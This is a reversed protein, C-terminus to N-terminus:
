KVDDVEKKFLNCTEEYKHREFDSYFRSRKIADDFDVKHGDFDPGDVCAFKIENDVRVRCGGCMGTGDIMLPNMSVITNIQYPLTTKAVFKMMILPGVAFVRDYGTDKSLIEKLKDTVLGKGQYSGDDTMIYLQDSCAKFEDELIVLEKNRFGLITIVKKGLSHLEKVIPYAIASGVGGSVVIVKNLNDFESPKGLPGVLDCLCDNVNLQNLKFTTSGVLQFILSITGKEINRDAITLPIREGDEAVRLIVFQGPKAKKAILPAYVDIRTVTPNLVIKNIIEFM